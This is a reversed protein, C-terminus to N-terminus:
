TGALLRLAEERFRETSIGRTGLFEAARGGGAALLALVIHETGVYSHGLAHSQKEAQGLLAKVEWGVTLKDATTRVLIGALLDDIADRHEELDLGLRELTVRGPGREVKALASLVHEPTVYLHQREEAEKRAVAMVKVARDTFRRLSLGLSQRLSAWDM